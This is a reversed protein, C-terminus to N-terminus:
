HNIFIHLNIYVRWYCCCNINSIIELIYLLLHKVKVKKQAWLAIDSIYHCYIPVLQVREHIKFPEWGQTFGYTIVSWPTIWLNALNACVWSSKSLHRWQGKEKQQDIM